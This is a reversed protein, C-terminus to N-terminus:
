AVVPAAAQDRAERAIAVEPLALLARPRELLPLQGVTQMPRPQRHRCRERRAVAVMAEGIGAVDDGLAQGYDSGQALAQAGPGQRHEGPNGDTAADASEVIEPYAMRIQIRVVHQQALLGHVEDVEIATLQAPRPQPAVGVQHPPGWEHLLDGPSQRRLTEPLRVPVCQEVTVALEGGAGRRRHGSLVPRRKRNTERRATYRAAGSM